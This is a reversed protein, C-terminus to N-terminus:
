VGPIPDDDESTANLVVGEIKVVYRLADLMWTQRSVGAKTALDTMADALASEPRLLIPKTNAVTVGRWV